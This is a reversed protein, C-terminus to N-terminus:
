HNAQMDKAIDNRDLFSLNQNKLPIPLLIILLSPECGLVYESKGAHLFPLPVSTKSWPEGDVQAPACVSTRPRVVGPVKSLTIVFAHMLLCLLMQFSKFVLYM